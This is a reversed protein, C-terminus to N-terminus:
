RTRKPQQILLEGAVIQLVLVFPVALIAGIVGAFRSGIMVSLITVLPSFGISRKMVLPVLLNNEVQQIIFYLAIVTLALLPSTALAVLVAPIGAVIPGITPVIELVGAIIALPLAFDIHLVSLGIFSLLGISFMLVLEGRVWGGLRTEVRRLIDITKRTMSEGVLPTLIQAARPRELIFYFTFVLTTLTTVINTFIGVTVKVINESIPAIQKTLTEADINWYPFVRAAFMPLDTILKTSQTVLPPIAGALSVGLLGFVVLYVLLISIVRPLRIRELLIVLPHIATMLLFAIFLLFLIDKIQSLAWLAAIFAVGFIITRYSIEIKNM